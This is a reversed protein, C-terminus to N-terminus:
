VFKDISEDEKDTKQNGAVTVNAVNVNATNVIHNGETAATDQINRAANSILNNHTMLTAIMMQMM